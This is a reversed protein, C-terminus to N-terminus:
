QHSESVETATPPDRWSLNSAWCRATNPVLLCAMGVGSRCDAARDAVPLALNADLFSTPAAAITINTARILLDAELRLNRVDLMLM